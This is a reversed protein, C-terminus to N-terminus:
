CCTCATDRVRPVADHGRQPHVVGAPQRGPALLQLHADGGADARDGNERKRDISVDMWAGSRKNPRAYLDLYFRGVLSGGPDRIEFFRVM